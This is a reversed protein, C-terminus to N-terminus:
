QRVVKLARAVAQRLMDSTLIGDPLPWGRTRMAASVSTSVPPELGYQKLAESMSFVTGTQGDLVVRGHNFVTLADTLRGLDEMRHSSLVLTMGSDRMVSLRNLLERRSFPDLGATPEDLLLISPKLALTSAIAVKRREGGSLTGLPRDKYKEFDLGVQDMAWRVREALPQDVKFQRPGYAIEDGVFHEFFQTEPNQFVLGVKRVVQRRDVSTDSLDFEAVRLSGEQPRLLANLHQMLTTKGSGTMGLLGHTQGAGIQLDVGELARQALPTGAMYTHGLGAVEILPPDANAQVSQKATGQNNFGDSGTFDPLAALLDALTLLNQPLDPIVARLAAAVRGAPPLDLRLEALRAPDSFIQEPPGDLVVRGQDLVIVRGALVAEDMFHTVTIITTGARHLRQMAEMLVHRGAPDLMTSAEDFIMCMPQMALVGALAVRQIQGASLLHPSRARLETLGVEELARDVRRRVEDRPLAMNEPGFAVDEEVTTSVIQDEPFQFVMGVMAQIQARHEPRRTDAGAVWVQGAQPLLLGNVLRAFTSKGSGNAGVVAVFEGEAIKLSVDELAQIAPGEGQQYRFSVNDFLIFPDM